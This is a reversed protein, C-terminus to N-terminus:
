LKQTEVIKMVGIGDAKERMLLRVLKVTFIHKSTSSGNIADTITIAAPVRFSWAHRGMGSDMESTLTITPGIATNISVVAGPHKTVDNLFPLINMADLGKYFIERGGPVLYRASHEELERKFNDQHLTFLHTIADLAYKKAAIDDYMAQDVSPIEVVQGAANKTVVRVDAPQFVLILVIIALLLNVGASVGLAIAINKLGNTKLTNWMLTAELLILSKKENASMKAARDGQAYRKRKNQINEKDGM